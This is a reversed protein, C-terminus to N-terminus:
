NRAAEQPTAADIYFCFKSQEYIPKERKEVKEKLSEINVGLHRGPRQIFSNHARWNGLGCHESCM